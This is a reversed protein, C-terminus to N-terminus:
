TYLRKTGYGCSQDLKPWNVLQGRGAPFDQQRRIEL